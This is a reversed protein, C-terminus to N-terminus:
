NGASPFPSCEGDCCGLYLYKVGSQGLPLPANLLAGLSFVM